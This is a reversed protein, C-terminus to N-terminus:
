RLTWLLWLLFVWVGMAVVACGALLLRGVPGHFIRPLHEPADDDETPVVNELYYSWWKRVRARNRDRVMRWRGFLGKYKDTDLSTPQGTKSSENTEDLDISLSGAKKKQNM